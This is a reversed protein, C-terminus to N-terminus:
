NLLAFKCDFFKVCYTENVRAYTVILYLKEVAEFNLNINNYLQYFIRPM